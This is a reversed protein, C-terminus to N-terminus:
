RPNIAVSYGTEGRTSPTHPYNDGVGVGVLATSNDPGFTIGGTLRISLQKGGGLQQGVCEATTYTIAAVGQIIRCSFGPASGALVAINHLDIGIGVKIDVRVKNATTTGTNKATITWAGNDFNRLLFTGSVSVTLNAPTPAAVKPQLLSSTGAVVLGGRHLFTVTQGDASVTGSEGLPEWAAGRQAFLTVATGGPLPQRAPVTVALTAGAPLGEVALAACWWPTGVGAPPNEEPGPRRVRLTTGAPVPEGVVALRVGTAGVAVPQGAAAAQDLTIEGATATAVLPTPQAQLQALRQPQLRPRGQAEDDGTWTARVAFAGDPVDALSFALADAPEGPGYGPAAWALRGGEEGLFVARGPTQLTEVLAAGPPLTVEVRLNGLGAELPRALVVAYRVRDPLRVASLLLEAQGKDRGTAAGALTPLSALALALIIILAAAPGRGRRAGFPHRM